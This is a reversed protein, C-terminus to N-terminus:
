DNEPEPEETSCPHKRKKPNADQVPRLTVEWTTDAHLTLVLGNETYACMQVDHEILRQLKRLLAMKINTYPTCSLFKCYGDPTCKLRMRVAQEIRTIDSANQVVFTVIDMAQSM